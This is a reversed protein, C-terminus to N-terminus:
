CRENARVPTVFEFWSSQCAFHASVSFSLPPFPLPPPLPPPPSLSLSLFRSLQGADSFRVRRKKYGGANGEEELDEDSDVEGRMRRMRAKEAAVLREHEEV